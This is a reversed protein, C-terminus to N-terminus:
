DAHQLTKGNITMRSSGNSGAELDPLSSSSSSASLPSASLPIMDDKKANGITAAASEKIRFFSYAFFGSIALAMGFVNLYSVHNHFYTISGVIVVLRKLTNAVTHSLVNVRSLVYISAVNQTYHCALSVFIVIGSSFWSSDSRTTGIASSNVQMESSPMMSLGFEGFLYSVASHIVGEEWLILPATLLLACTGSYLHFVVPDVSLKRFVSKTYTSQLVGFMTSILASLFGVLHFSLGNIAALIVGCIVPLLSALIRWSPMTNYFVKASLVAFVPASAKITHTLSAPVKVYSMYTLCKTFVLTFAVPAVARLLVRGRDSHLSPTPTGRSYLWVIDFIVSTSLHLLTLLSPYPFLQM